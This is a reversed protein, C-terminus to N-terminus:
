RPDSKIGMTVIIVAILIFMTLAFARFLGAWHEFEAFVKAGLLGITSVGVLFTAIFVARHIDPAFSQLKVALITLEFPLVILWNVVFNWGMAFGWAPSIFRVSADYFAGNVPYSISTEGVAGVVLAVLTGCLLFGLVTSAPGAETLAIGSAVLIGAGVSSGLAM